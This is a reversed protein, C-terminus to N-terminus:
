NYDIIIIIVLYIFTSSLLTSCDIGKSLAFLGNYKYGMINYGMINYGMINYGMINYGM